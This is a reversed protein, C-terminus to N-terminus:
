LKRLYFNLTGICFNLSLKDWTTSSLKINNWAFWDSHLLVDYNLHFGKKNITSLFHLKSCNDQKIKLNNARQTELCLAWVSPLLATGVGAPESCWSGVVADSVTGLLSLRACVSLFHTYWESIINKIQLHQPRLITGPASIHRESVYISVHKPINTVEPSQLESRFVHEQLDLSLKISIFARWLYLKSTKSVKFHRNNKHPIQWIAHRIYTETCQWTKPENKWLLCYGHM